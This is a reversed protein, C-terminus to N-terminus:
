VVYGINMISTIGAGNADLDQESTNPMMQRLTLLDGKEYLPLLFARPRRDNVIHDLRNAFLTGGGMFEILTKMDHPITFSYEFPTAEYTIDGWTCFGCKAPNYEAPNDWSGDSNRPALFGNFGHSEVEDSWLRQWNASRGLYKDVDGPDEGAAVVSLAYDNSAYEVTRSISRTCRDRSLYGLSLWDSLAGRGHRVSGAQDLISYTNAPLVEADKVMAAYGDTWNIGGRLGKVYADALVNDANSGGQTIGNYNGSRGDPMYGEHRWIDIVARIMGEYLSVTCRFIDWFTYFDDWYPEESDWLPNEGTRDSPMLHMFYLSSYLLALNTQNATSSDTAVRIKSFVDTNWERVAAEVRDQLHWSLIEEDRYRCATQTDMFSIGVRSKVTDTTGKWTFLAGIRDNLPSSRETSAEENFVPYAPPGSDFSRFRPTPDTNPGRFTRAHDPQSDFEGCFFVTYPAGENFGGSYTGHGQYESGNLRIEGGLFSQTNYGGTESPLYHSVDVLVHKEGGTPFSYQMIGSHRAGSLEIDVGSELSTKFYGVRAVDDGVRRQWYTRNDLLNVPEHIKTLPMQSVIGYKPAGGTGSVHMMSVATVSGNPTWGGNIASFSANKEYTDIGVKAVGFPVAGGVFIDGGGVPWSSPRNSYISYM